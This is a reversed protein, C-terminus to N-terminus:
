VGPGAPDFGRPLDLALASMGFRHEGHGAGTRPHYYERLGSRAIADLANHALRDAEDAAGLARLGGALLWATCTWAAGRWTRFADFGPRFSPEEMSVSPVGFRAGYRRPNLLHEEALRERVDRPLADGLALPALSSWTSVEVRREHRGALDFFLGRRPDWCRELLATEVRSAREAWEVDGSMRFLARLSLAHAVNVLVDEVHEDCGAVYTRASWRARRCRQVLRAHGPRWHALRGYVADYKPSDDLGSEDPLMITILGDGDPDRERALWRAHAALPALGEAIFTRDEAAAREWAVALLPTQISSTAADGLVRATAYLPARRWRPSAQWFATHPVFGDSRGARVLTRLEERARAPDVRSWAVAHFCSDWYWQHKYRRPAPCTFAFRTGDRRVGERWNARLVGAADLPTM